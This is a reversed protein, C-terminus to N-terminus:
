QEDDSEGYHYRNWDRTAQAVRPDEEIVNVFQNRVQEGQPSLTLAPRESNEM